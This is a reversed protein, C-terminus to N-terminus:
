KTTQKEQPREFIYINTKGELLTYGKQITWTTLVGHKLALDLYKHLKQRAKTINKQPDINAFSFMERETYETKNKIKRLVDFVLKRLDEVEIIEAPLMKEFDRTKMFRPDDKLTPRANYYLMKNLDIQLTEGDENVTFRIYSVNRKITQTKKRYTFVFSSPFRMKDLYEFARIIEQLDVRDPHERNALKLVEVIPIKYQFYANEPSDIRPFKGDKIKLITTKVQTFAEKKIGTVRELDDLTNIDNENKSLFFKTKPDDLRSASATYQILKQKENERKKKRTEFDNARYQKLTLAQKLETIYEVTRDPIGDFKAVFDSTRKEMEPTPDHRTNGYIKRVYGALYGDWLEPNEANFNVVFKLFDDFYVGFPEVKGNKKIRIPTENEIQAPTLGDSPTLKGVSDRRYIKYKPTDDKASGKDKNKLVEYPFIDFHASRIADYSVFAIQLNDYTPANETTNDPTKM